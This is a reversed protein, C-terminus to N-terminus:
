LGRLRRVTEQMEGVTPRKLPVEWVRAFTDACATAFAHSDGRPNVKLVWGSHEFPPALPEGTLADWLRLTKDWSASALIRDDPTFAVDAIVGSHQMPGAVIHGSSSDLLWIAFESSTVAIRTGTSNVGIALPYVSHRIPKGYPRKNTLDWIQVHTEDCVALWRSNSSFATLLAPRNGLDLQRKGDAVTWLAAPHHLLVNVFFKGDPSFRASHRDESQGELRVEEILSGKNVDWTRLLDDPSCTVIRRVDLWAAGTVEDTQPLNMDSHLQGMSWIQM